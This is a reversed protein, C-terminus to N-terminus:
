ANHSMLLSDKLRALIPAKKHRSISLLTEKTYNLNKKSNIKSNLISKVISELSGKRNVVILGRIRKEKGNIILSKDPNCEQWLAWM